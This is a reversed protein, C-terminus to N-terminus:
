GSPPIRQGVHPVSFSGSERNQPPQPARRVGACDLTAGVCLIESSAGSAGGVVGGDDGGSPGTDYAGGEIGGLAAGTM